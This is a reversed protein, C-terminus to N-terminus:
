TLEQPIYSEGVPLIQISSMRILRTSVKKTSCLQGLIKWGLKGEQGREMLATLVVEHDSPKGKMQIGGGGNNKMLMEVLLYKNFKLM